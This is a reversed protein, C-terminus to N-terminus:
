SVHELHPDCHIVEPMLVEIRSGGNPECLISKDPSRALLNAQAKKFDLASFYCDKSINENYGYTVFMAVSYNRGAGFSQVVYRPERVTSFMIGDVVMINDVIKQLRALVAERNDELWERYVIDTSLSLDSDNINKNFVDNSKIRDLELRVDSYTLKSWFNKFPAAVGSCSYRYTTGNSETNLIVEEVSVKRSPKDSISEMDINWLKGDYSRICHEGIKLALPLQDLTTSKIRVEISDKVAVIIPKSCRPKIIKAEYVFPVNLTIIQYTTM